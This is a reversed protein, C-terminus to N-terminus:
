SRCGGGGFPKNNTPGPRFCNLRLSLQPFASAPLKFLAQDLGAAIAPDDETDVWTTLMECFTEKRGYAECLQAFPIVEVERDNFGWWKVECSLLPDDDQFFFPHSVARYFGKRKKDAELCEKQTHTNRTHFWPHEVTDERAYEAEVNMYLDSCLHASARAQGVTKTARKRRWRLAM